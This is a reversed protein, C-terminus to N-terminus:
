WDVVPGGVVGQHRLLCVVARLLMYWGVCVWWVSLCCLVAGCVCVWWLFPCRLVACAGVVGVVRVWWVCLGFRVTRVRESEAKGESQADQM